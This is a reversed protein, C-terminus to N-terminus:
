RWDPMAWNKSDPKTWHLAGVIADAVEEWKMGIAEAYDSLIPKLSNRTADDRDAEEATLSLLAAGIADVVDDVDLGMHEAIPEALAPLASEKANQVVEDTWLKKPKEQDSM